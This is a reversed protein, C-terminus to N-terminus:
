KFMVHIYVENHDACALGTGLNFNKQSGSLFQVASNILFEVSFYRSERVHNIQEKAVSGKYSVTIHFVRVSRKLKCSILVGKPYQMPM